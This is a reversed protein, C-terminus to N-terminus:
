ASSKQRSSRSYLYSLLAIGFLLLAAVFGSAADGLGSLIDIVKNELIRRQSFYDELSETWRKHQWAILDSSKVRIPKASNLDVIDKGLNSLQQAMQMLNNAADARWDAPIASMFDAKYQEALKKADQETIYIVDQPLAFKIGTNNGSFIMGKSGRIFLNLERKDRSVRMALESVPKESLASYFGMVSELKTEGVSIIIDDKKVGSLEAFSGPELAAVVPKIIQLSPRSLKNEYDAFFEFTKQVAPDLELRQDGVPTPAKVPEPAPTKETLNNTPPRKSIKKMLLEYRQPGVFDAFRPQKVTLNKFNVAAETLDGAANFLVGLALVLLVSAFGLFWVHISRKSENPM